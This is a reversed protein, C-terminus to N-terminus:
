ALKHCKVEKTNIIEERGVRGGTYTRSSDCVIAEIVGVVLKNAHLTHLHMQTWSGTKGHDSQVRLHNQYVLRLILRSPTTTYLPHTISPSLVYVTIICVLHMHNIPCTPAIHVDNGIHLKTM